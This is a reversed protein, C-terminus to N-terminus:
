RFGLVRKKKPQRSFKQALSDLYIHVVPTIFLTLLQSVILGGVVALGLPQRSEAGAGIGFAIPLSGMLAAMTTMMIPRFRVLCAQYIAETASKGQNRQADVAFDVMMIANKKVIGILMILGLFAYINLDVHFILLTLLAGLGASPLGALITLPHIFSEYLIGLVIYIVVIALILLAGLGTLSSQFAQATGQYTSTISKPLTELLLKDIKPVADGLAAGPKLNFSITASSLQGLHNVLLPTTTQKFSAITDLPVLKGNASRVYLLSLLNPSRYYQPKVEIIVWYENTPTYITSIQKTGYASGLASDVDQASVGLMSAKDRSVDVNVQPSNMQLDSTVDELEPLGSMKAVLLDANKHLSKLNPSQLTIQYLSKTLQGGISVVPPNQLYIKIGQVAELQPRLKMILQDASLKRQKRPKLYMVISGANGTPSAGGTGVSSIFSAIEPEQSIIHALAKQHEVMAAFSITPSAETFGIIQGQDELPMFGKPVIVFLYATLAILSFSTILTIRKHAIVAKLAFDYAALLGDFVRESASYLKSVKKLESPPKLFRSCLMPTLSLSIFGSVLIAVSITVAFEKFLRGIIGSMFLVPIFVAVLSLTMSLVTFGIEQAGNIAAEHASEGLEMHRVINELVVIADDVVFGVSLTLAMLTLNNLSFGLFSMAAFTGIVSMPLALSPIVTASLNRLFLFIVIIVLVATLALTMEVDAVSDRITDALDYLVEVKCSSPLKTLLKPLAARINDVVQVTNTGPQRQVALLIARKENLWGAIKDNQVSDIVDGLDSLRVPSGNRYAVIVPKYANADLLQDNAQVNFAQHHGYLTGTPEKVNAQSIATSVEDIGLQHVALKRPDIQARVAYKQQGFIQVQAVGGVMSIHQALFTEAYEDVTWLPMSSSSIALYLVPNNAPNVKQYSPPSSMDKPLLSAAQTIASQVDQAAADINRNLNFQLTIQSQGLASASNMTEIGAITSFQKELPTAVASAMTEPSAGPLQATVVVTPFDVNPLANLPLTKYGILGCILIAIMVLTTMVPRQIFIM